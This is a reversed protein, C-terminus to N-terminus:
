ETVQYRHCRQKWSGGKPILLAKPWGSSAASEVVRNGCGGLREWCGPKDGKSEWWGPGWRREAPHQSKGWHGGNAREWDMEWVVTVITNGSCLWGRGDAVEFGGSVKSEAM